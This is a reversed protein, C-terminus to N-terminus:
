QGREILAGFTYGENPEEKTRDVDIARRVRSTIHRLKLGVLRCRDTVKMNRLKLIRLVNELCNCISIGNLVSLLGVYLLYDIVITQHGCNDDL